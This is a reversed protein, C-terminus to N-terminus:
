VAEICMAIGMGGGICLTALGRKKGQRKLEHILTVLVRTGSAGIPHGLAIAGGNINVKAPDLGLEQLVCLSQAAFAENSEIVDLDNVSWGAKKLALRTAPIPGTGMIDPDVGASAFSVVRVLPKLNNSKVFDDSGLLVFAAGDNIGSSNGATVTGNEIFAPRLKALSELTTDPRIFEDQDVIVTQKKVTLNIPTIEDKFRGNKAAAAAKVQSEYAFRDQQERTINFKNAINEATIGMAKGSFVDTLGDYSMTDVFNVNGMKTGKRLMATHPANSMSEVGGALILQGDGHLISTAGLAVSKLGSGCVKNITYAPIEFPHRKSDKLAKITIQRAPNQGLSSTLVQGIIVEDIPYPFQSVLDSAVLSGLEVASLSSLSGLLNGIASRKAGLIYVEKM